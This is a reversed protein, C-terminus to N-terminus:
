LGEAELNQECRLCRKFIAADIGRGIEALRAPEGTQISGRLLANSFMSPLVHEDDGRM